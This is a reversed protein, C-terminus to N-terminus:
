FNAMTRLLSCISTELIRLSGETSGSVVIDLEQSLAVCTVESNHGYLIASPHPKLGMCEGSKRLLKWIVVTTDRGVTGLFKGDLEMCTVVNKHQYVVGLPIIEHQNVRGTRISNDWLGATFLVRGDASLRVM